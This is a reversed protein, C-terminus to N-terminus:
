RLENKAREFWALTNIRQQEGYLQVFQQTSPDELSNLSKIRTDIYPKTLKQQGVVTIYHHWEEYSQPIVPNSM